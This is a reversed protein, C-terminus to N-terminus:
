AVYKVEEVTAGVASLLANRAANVDRDHQTGCASCAWTRVKLGALGTPGSLAGCASCTKTSNKSDVEIYQRGDTRCKYSLMQRLQYHGSSTVSKGFRKAIGSHNDKSFAILKNQSVLHRSLKHNRDKRQNAIRESIRAALKKNRGRQAQGLRKASAELERPHAIKDGNSLTLLSTFGPDIGIMNDGTIPISNPEADIFLCLHWGSAKRVIRGCKIEGQSVEQKHFKVSGLGPLFVRNTKINTIPDPFPIYSLKNRNSKLKPKGRNKKFYQSYSDYVGVLIGQLVHSPVGLIKSHLPLSSKFDLRRFYIKDKANLEIRRVAWNYVGTLYWLWESLMLEQKKTLQLKLQRHIM